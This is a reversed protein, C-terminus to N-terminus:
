LPSKVGVIPEAGHGDRGIDLDFSLLVGVLFDDLCGYTTSCSHDMPYVTRNGVALWIIIDFGHSYPHQVLLDLTAGDPLGHVLLGDIGACCHIGFAHFFLDEFDAHAEGGAGIDGVGVDMVDDVADLGCDNLLISAM